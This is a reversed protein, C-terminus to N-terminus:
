ARVKKRFRKIFSLKEDGCPEAKYVMHGKKCFPVLTLCDQMFYDRREKKFVCESCNREKM